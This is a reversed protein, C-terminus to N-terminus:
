HMPFYFQYTLAVPMYYSNPQPIIFQTFSAPNHPGPPFCGARGVETAAGALRKAQLCFKQGMYRRQTSSQKQQISYGWWSLSPYHTQLEISSKIRFHKVSHSEANCLYFVRSKKKKWVFLHFPEWMAWILGTSPQHGLRSLICWGKYLCKISSRIQTSLKTVRSLTQGDQALSIFCCSEGVLWFFFFFLNRTLALM